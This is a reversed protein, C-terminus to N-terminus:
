YEQKILPVVLTEEFKDVAFEIDVVANSFAVAALKSLACFKKRFPEDTSFLGGPCMRVFVDNISEIVFLSTM